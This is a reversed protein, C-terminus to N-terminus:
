SSVRVSLNSSSAAHLSQLSAAGAFGPEAELTEALCRTVTEVDAAEMRPHLPLTLERATFDETKPLSVNPYLDRYFPLHHTPPYHITTQIGAERLRDIVNATRGVSAALVPMIHHVSPRGADFPVSVIPCRAKISHRYLQALNKVSRTGGSSTVSTSRARNCGEIRGASLQLGTSITVDYIPNKGSRRQFTGSTLGQGAHGDFETAFSRM